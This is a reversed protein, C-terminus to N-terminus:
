DEWFEGHAYKLTIEKTRHGRDNFLEFDVRMDNNGLLSPLVRKVSEFRSYHLECDLHWVDTLRVYGDRVAQDIPIDIGHERLTKAHSGDFKWFKGYPTIWGSFGVDISATVLRYDKTLFM